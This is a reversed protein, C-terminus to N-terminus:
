GARARRAHEVVQEAQRELHHQGLAEAEDVALLREVLHVEREAAHAGGVVLRDAQAAVEDGGLVVDRGAAGREALVVQRDHDLRLAQGLEGPAAASTCDAKVSSPTM